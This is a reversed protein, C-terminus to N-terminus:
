AINVEIVDDIPIIINNKLKIVRSVSDIKKINGKVFNYSGGSKKEDSIFYKIIVEDKDTLNLLINNIKEKELDDLIIKKNTLRATEKIEDDFGVLASFPAFQSSRNYISMRKHKPEFHKINIIDDYEHM